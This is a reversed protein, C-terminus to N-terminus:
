EVLTVVRNVTTSPHAADYSPITIQSTKNYMTKAVLGTATLGGGSDQLYVNAGPAYIYGDLVQNSSGFQVQLDNTNTAPQMIAIGNYPGSTPSVVNVLSNSKQTFTGSYIDITGGFVTVTSGTSVTVGNGFVLTGAPSTVVDNAITNGLTGSGFTANNITVAKTYCITYGAGPGAINGTLTTTTSDITDCGNGNSPNPGTINGWPSKRPASNMTASTPSTDHQLPANGVVDLFKANFTGGNGTVSIADSTTSNVYAGCSPAEIDYSGQLHLGNGTNAMLWICAQGTTPDGAVARAQVTMSRFGFMAMFHTNQPQSVVAEVFGASGANPGDAPPVSITVVAGGSGGTVGNASAAATGSAIASSTNSNYLYDLAGSMAAADAAIQMNRRDNFLLGVDTALAVFGVLATMSLAALVLVNGSEESLRKKWLSVPKM